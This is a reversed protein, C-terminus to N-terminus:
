VANAILAGLILLGILSGILWMFLKQGWTFKNM